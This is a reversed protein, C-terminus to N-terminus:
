TRVPHLRSRARVDPGPAFTFTAMLSRTACRRGPGSHDSAALRRCRRRDGREVRGTRAAQRVGSPSIGVLAAVEVSSAARLEFAVALAVNRTLGGQQMPDVSSVAGAADLVERITVRRVPELGPRSRLDSEHGDLVFALYSAGHMLGSIVDTRLWDPAARTGVYPGLSSHVYRDLAAAPVFALPNREIYRAEVLLHDDDTIPVHGYRGTFLPGSRETRQNYASGYRSGLHQMFTSLRDDPAHVLLHYHNTMLAYAHVDVDALQTAEAILSEFLGRDGDLSFIDQGDAGRNYVHFWDAQELHRLTRGM